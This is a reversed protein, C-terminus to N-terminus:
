LSRLADISLVTKLRSRVPPIGSAAMMISPLIAPFHLLVNFFSLTVTCAFNNRFNLLCSACDRSSATSRYASKMPFFRDHNRTHRESLASMMIEYRIAATTPVMIHFATNKGAHDAFRKGSRSNVKSIAPPPCDSRLLGDADNRSTQMQNLPRIIKQLLHFASSCGAASSTFFWAPM